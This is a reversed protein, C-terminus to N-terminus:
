GTGSMTSKSKKKTVNEGPVIIHMERRDQKNM